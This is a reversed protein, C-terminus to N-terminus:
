NVKNKWLGHNNCYAYIESGKVYKFFVVPDENPKLNIKIVENGNIMAIWKIYHNEEMPHIQKGVSVKIKEGVVEYEPIHKETSAEVINAELLEMKKNCCTIHTIDGEVLEIVNGCIECVYMKM